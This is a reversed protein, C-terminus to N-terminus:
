RGSLRDVNFTLAEDFHGHTVIPRNQRLAEGFDIGRATLAIMQATVIDADAENTFRLGFAVPRKWAVDLSMMSWAAVLGADDVTLLRESLAMEGLEAIPRFRNQRGSLFALAEGNANEAVAVARGAAILQKIQLVTLTVALGPAQRGNPIVSGIQMAFPAALKESPRNDVAANRSPAHDEVFKPPAPRAEDNPSPRAISSDLNPLPRHVPLQPTRPPPTSVALGPSNSNTSDTSTVPATQHAPGASTSAAITTPGVDDRPTLHASGGTIPAPLKTNVAVVSSQGTTQQVEAAPRPGALPTTLVESLGAIGFKTAFGQYILGVGVMTVLATAGMLRYRLPSTNVAM